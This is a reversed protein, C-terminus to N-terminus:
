GRWCKWGFRSEKREKREKREEREKRAKRAKRAKREEGPVRVVARAVEEALRLMGGVAVVAPVVTGAVGGVREGQAVVAGGARAEAEVARRRTVDICAFPEGRGAHLAPTEDAGVADLALTADSTVVDGGGPGGLVNGAHNGRKELVSAAHPTPGHHQWVGHVLM